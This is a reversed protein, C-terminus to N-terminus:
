CLSVVQNTGRSGRGFEWFNQPIGLFRKTGRGTFAESRITVGALISASSCRAACTPDRCPMSRNSGEGVPRCGRQANLLRRRVEAHPREICCVLQAGNNVNKRGIVPDMQHLAPSACAFRRRQYRDRREQAIRARLHM